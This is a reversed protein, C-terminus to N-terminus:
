QPQTVSIINSRVNNSPIVDIIGPPNVLSTRYDIRGYNKLAFYDVPVRVAYTGGPGLWPVSYNYSGPGVNVDLTLGGVGRASRNQVILQMEFTTPDFFQSSVATDIRSFDNRNMVWGLNLIGAGFDPDPGVPGGDSAYQQLLSWAQAASLGPNQSMMAAIGGAVVPASASTGDISVRQGNVWASQLGFGPASIKLQEGANSFFVQQEAADVAGVSIVRPDAAPWTLEAAQDNGASAVIMVGRATAYDIASTMVNSAAYSGMSVNVIQAGADVAAMMAQALTFSDSLGDEGTVRISLLTASQAIGVADPAMGGALSAVATGHGNDPTPAIGLGVDLYRLRGTGFTPDAVVGSDLLAITVGSGWKSTDGTVGLFELLGNGIAVFKGAFRPDTEPVDPPFVSYNADVDGYDESHAALDAALADLSDFGVRVARLGDHRGLVKLGAAAARALFRRYADADKFTLVAENPRVKEEALATRLRALLKEAVLYGRSHSTTAPPPPTPEERSTAASLPEPAPTAFATPNSQDRGVWWGLIAVAAVLCAPLLLHSISRHRM